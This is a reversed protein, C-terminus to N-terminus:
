TKIIELHGTMLGIADNLSDAQQELVKLEHVQREIFNEVQLACSTSSLSIGDLFAMAKLVNETGKNASQLEKMALNMSGELHEASAFIQTFVARAEDMSIGEAELVKVSAQTSRVADSVGNQMTQLLEAIEKAASASAQSLKKVESAVVMFGKGADGARAAEISANLALLNTQVSIDQILQVMGNVTQSHKELQFVGNQVQMVERRMHQMGDNLQEILEHGQTATGAFEEASAVAKIVLKEATNLDHKMTEIVLNIDQVSNLQSQANEGQNNSIKMADQSGEAQAITTERVSQSIMEVEYAASRADSVIQAFKQALVEISVALQGIIDRGSVGIKVTLNGESIEKVKDTIRYIPNYLVTRAIFYNIIGLMLGAFLCSILFLVEREPIIVVFLKAFFPFVLGVAAGTSLMTVLMIVMTTLKRKGQRM